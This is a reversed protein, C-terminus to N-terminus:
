RSPKIATIRPAARRSRESFFVSLLRLRRQQPPPPPATSPAPGPHSQLISSHALRHWYSHTRIKRASQFQCHGPRGNRGGHSVSSTTERNLSWAQVAATSVVSGLVAVLRKGAQVFSFDLTRSQRSGREVTASRRDDNRNEIKM